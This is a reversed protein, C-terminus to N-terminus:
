EKGLARKIAAIEGNLEVIRISLMALEMAQEAAVDARIIEIKEFPDLITRISDRLGEAKLVLRRQELEKERLRGM